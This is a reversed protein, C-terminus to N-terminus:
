PGGFMPGFPEIYPGGVDLLPPLPGIYQGGVEDLLPGLPGINPPGGPLPGGGVLTLPPGFPGITLPGLLLIIFPGIHGGVLPPGTMPGICLGMVGVLVCPPMVIDVPGPELLGCPEVCPLPDPVGTPGRLLPPPGPLAGGPSEDLWPGGLTPGGTLQAPGGPLTGGM